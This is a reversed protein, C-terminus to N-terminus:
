ARKHLDGQYVNKLLVHLLFTKLYSLVSQIFKGNRTVQAVRTRLRGIIYAVILVVHRYIVLQLYEHNKM